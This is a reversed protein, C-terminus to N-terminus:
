PAAEARKARISAVQAMSETLVRHAERAAPESDFYSELYALADAATTGQNDWISHGEDCVSFFVYVNPDGDGDENESNAQLIVGDVLTAVLNGLEDIQWPLAGLNQGLIYEHMDDIQENYQDGRANNAVTLFVDPSEDRM